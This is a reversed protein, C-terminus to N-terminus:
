ASHREAADRPGSFMDTQSPHQVSLGNELPWFTTSPLEKEKPLTTKVTPRLDIRDALKTFEITLCLSAKAKEEPHEELAGIVRSMEDNLKEELRGRSLLGLAQLFSRIVRQSM